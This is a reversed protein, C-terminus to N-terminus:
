ENIKMIQPLVCKLGSPTATELSLSLIYVQFRVFIFTNRNYIFVTNTILAEYKIHLKYAYEEEKCQLSCAWM